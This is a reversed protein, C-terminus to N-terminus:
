ALSSEVRGNGPQRNVRKRNLRQLQGDRPHRSVRQPLGRHDRINLSPYRYDPESRHEKTDARRRLLSMIPDAMFSPMRVEIQLEVSIVAFTGATVEYVTAWRLTAHDTVMVFDLHVALPRRNGVILYVVHDRRVTTSM